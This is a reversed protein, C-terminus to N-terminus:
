FDGNHHPHGRWGSAYQYLMGSDYAVMIIPQLWKPAVPLLRDLEEPSLIVDREIHEKTFALQNVKGKPEDTLSAGINEVSTVVDRDCASFRANEPSISRSATLYRSAGGAVIGILGGREIARGISMLHSPRAVGSM